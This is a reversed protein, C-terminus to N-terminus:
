QEIAFLFTNFNRSQLLRSKNETRPCSWCRNWSAWVSPVNHTTRFALPQLLLPVHISEFRWILLIMEFSLGVIIPILYGIICRTKIWHLPPSSCLCNRRQFEVLFVFTEAAEVQAMQEVKLTVFGVDLLNNVFDEFHPLISSQLGDKVTKEM